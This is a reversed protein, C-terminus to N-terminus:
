SGISNDQCCFLFLFGNQIIFLTDMFDLRDSFVYAHDITAHPRVVPPSVKKYESYFFIGAVYWWAELPYLTIINDTVSNQITRWVAEDRMLLMKPSSHKAQRIKNGQDSKDM